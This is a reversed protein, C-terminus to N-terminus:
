EAVIEVVREVEVTDPCEPDGECTPAMMKGKETRLKVAKGVLGTAEPGCLDFDGPYTAEGDAGELVVYCAADGNQLEKLKGTIGAGADAPAETEADDPAEAEPTPAGAHAPDADPAPETAAEGGGCGVFLLSMWVLAYTM